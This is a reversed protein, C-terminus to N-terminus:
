VRGVVIEIIGEDNSHYDALAKGLVTGPRWHEFNLKTAVGTFESSTVLDGKYINGVVRCPVRGQLAVPQGVAEANMLYAPNTSIIGALATDAYQTSATIEESGGFSVVTGPAYVQDSKYIEALDAYQASTAKAFVTNFGAGAAGINGVGNTGGNVIATAPSGTITHAGSSITSLITLAGTSSLQLCNASASWGGIRFVNDTGLGMNIAFAGTRHFSMSAVTSTNGRASFSGTDNATNVDTSASSRGTVLGTLSLSSLTGVSTINPQAATTVTGATTAAGSVTITYTGSLRAAPVTGFDLNSASLSTLARGNGTVTTFAGTTGSVNGGSINGTVTLATLTGVSTINPQAATTVTGATTAAGTLAGVFTTSTVSSLGAVTTVTAGLTLATSGLTVAANALRAQALTGTDINTANLSTLARGNGSVAGSTVLNGGTINGTASVFGSVTVGATSFVAVNSTGGVSITANGNTVPINVSTTGNTLNELITVSGGLVTVEVDAGTPPASTFTIVNGAISYASRLQSVGSINVSTVSQSSPVVSLTFNVASGNGVFNDVASTLFGSSSIGTILAGNGIIYNGTVNGTASVQGATIINGGQVNGTVSVFKNSAITTVVNSNNKYFLNGDTFNLALEGHELDSALPVKDGVSSKKLIINNSM